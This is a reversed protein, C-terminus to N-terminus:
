GEVQRGPEGAPAGKQKAPVKDNTQIRPTDKKRPPYNPPPKRPMKPKPGPPPEVGERFTQILRMSSIQALNCFGGQAFINLM